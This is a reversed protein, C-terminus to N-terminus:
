QHEPVLRKVKCEFYQAIAGVILAGILLPVFLVLPTPAHEIWHLVEHFLWHVSEKLAFIAIWVVVGIVVAQGVLLRQEKGIRLGRLAQSLTNGM